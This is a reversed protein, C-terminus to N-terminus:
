KSFEKTRDNTSSGAMGGGGIVNVLFSNRLIQQKLFKDNLSLHLTFRNPLGPPKEISWTLEPIEGKLYQEVEKEFNMLLTYGVGAYPLLLQKIVDRFPATENKIISLNSNLNFTPPQRDHFFTISIHKEFLGALQHMVNRLAVLFGNVNDVVAKNAFTLPNYYLPDGNHSDDDDDSNPLPILFYQMEQELESRSIPFIYTPIIDDGDKTAVSPSLEKRTGDRILSTISNQANPLEPWHIKGTRYYQLIYRFLYGDRDFFYENGNTPHLMEKNREAFMTGLLTEPYAVLTSRFTEYRIGGVNLVIREEAAAKKENSKSISENSSKVEVEENFSFKSLEETLDHFM